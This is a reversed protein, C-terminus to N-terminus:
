DRPGARRPPGAGARVRRARAGRRGARVQPRENAMDERCGPQKGPRRVTRAVGDSGTRDSRHTLPSQGAGDPFTRRRVSRCSTPQAVSRRGARAHRHPWPVSCVGPAACSGHAGPPTVRDTAAARLRRASPAASRSTRGSRGLPSAVHPPSRVLRVVRARPRCLVTASISVGCLVRGGEVRSNTQSGMGFHALEELLASSVSAASSSAVTRPSRQKERL